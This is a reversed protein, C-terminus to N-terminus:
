IKEYYYVTHWGIREQKLLRFNKEYNKLGFSVAIIKVGSKVNALSTRFLNDLVEPFLYTYFVTTEDVIFSPINFFDGHWFNIRNGLGHLRARALSFLYLFFQIEVGWAKKIHFDKVAKILVKGSGSGLDCLVDDKKLEAKRLIENLFKGEVPVFPASKKKFVFMLMDSLFIALFMLAVVILLILLIFTLVIKAM